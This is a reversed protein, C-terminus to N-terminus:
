LTWYMRIRLLLYRGRELCLGGPRAFRAHIPGTISGNATIINILVTFSTMNASPLLPLWFHHTKLPM